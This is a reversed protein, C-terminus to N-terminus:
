DEGSAFSKNREKSRKDLDHVIILFSCGRTLLNEAWASCKRLLKGCGHAAFKRFSFYEEKIMKCTLEYMVDADNNEEAIIGIKVSKVSKVSRTSDAM